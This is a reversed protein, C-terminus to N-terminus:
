TQFERVFVTEILIFLRKIISNGRKISAYFDRYLFWETTTTDRAATPIRKGLNEM